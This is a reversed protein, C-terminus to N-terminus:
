RTSRSCSGAPVSDDGVCLLRCWCILKGGDDVQLWLLDAVFVASFNFVCELGGIVTAERTEAYWRLGVGRWCHHFVVHCPGDLLHQPLEQLGLVDDVGLYWVALANM